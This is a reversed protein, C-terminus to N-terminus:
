IYRYLRFRNGNDIIKNYSNQFFRAKPRDNSDLCSFKNFITEIIEEKVHKIFSTEDENVQSLYLAYLVKLNLSGSINIYSAINLLLINCHTQFDVRKSPGYYAILTVNKIISIAEKETYNSRKKYYDFIKKVQFIDIEGHRVKNAFTKCEKYSLNILDLINEDNSSTKSEDNSSTKSEDNSSTKSEDNSSTKSEDNSSTKSEDNSLIKSEDNSSTKSEDNSSTKSEDNSSTKSEDNSSTKSEDNSSTKSEDNSSTKSEDNLLTKSENLLTESEILLTESENLLIKSEDNSLTKSENLLTKSINLLTKSVNLLSKSVNLLSKSVNNSLDKKFETEKNM